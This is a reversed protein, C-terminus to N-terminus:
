IAQYAKWLLSVYHQFSKFQEMNPTFIPVGGEYHDPLVEGIDEEEPDEIDSLESDSGDLKSANNSEPPSSLGAPPAAPSEHLESLPAPDAVAETSM